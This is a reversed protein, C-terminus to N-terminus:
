TADLANLLTDLNTSLIQRLENACNRYRQLTNPDREGEYQYPDVIDGKLGFFEKLIHTKSRPLTNQTTDFLGKDMVLILDAKNVLEDTFAVPKHDKLLDAKYMEKIVERAGFSAEKGSPVLGVAYVDVPHKLKRGALLQETIAKAMPDRCTSGASVYVLVRHKRRFIAPVNAYLYVLVAVVGATIIGALVERWLSVILHFLDSIANMMPKRVRRDYRTAHTWSDSLHAFYGLAAVARPHEIGTMGRWRAFDAM